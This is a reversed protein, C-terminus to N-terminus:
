KDHQQRLNSYNETSFNDLIGAKKEPFLIWECEKPKKINKYGETKYYWKANQHHATVLGYFNHNTLYKEQVFITASTIFFFNAVGQETATRLL